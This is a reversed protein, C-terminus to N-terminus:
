VSDDRDVSTVNIYAVYCSLSSGSLILSATFSDMKGAFKLLFHSQQTLRQTLFNTGSLLMRQTILSFLLWFTFSSSCQYHSNICTRKNLVTQSLSLKLHQSILHPSQTLNLSARATLLQTSWQSLMRKWERYWQSLMRKWERYWQSLM